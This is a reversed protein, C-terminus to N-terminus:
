IPSFHIVLQTIPIKFKFHRNSIFTSNKLLIQPPSACKPTKLGIFTTQLNLLEPLFFFFTPCLYNFLTECLAGAPIEILVCPIFITPFQKLFGPAASAMSAANGLLLLQRLYLGCEPLKPALSNISGVNREM